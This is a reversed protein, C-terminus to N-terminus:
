LYKISLYNILLHFTNDVIIILWFPFTAKFDKNVFNLWYKALRFKDIFFHTFFIVLMAPKSAVELVYFPASYFAAHVYCAVWGEITFLVKKEAMWKNQTVYDGILHFILQEM